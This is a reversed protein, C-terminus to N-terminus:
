QKFVKISCTKGNIVAEILYIGMPLVQGSASTGDWSLLYKGASAIENALSEVLNGSSNYVNVQVQSRIDLQIALNVKETFPNPYATMQGQATVPETIGVGLPVWDLVMEQFYPQNAPNLHEAVPGKHFLVSTSPGPSGNNASNESTYEVWVQYVGDPVQQGSSNTGDWTITHMQHSNLTAGTVATTTNYASSAVWKVLHKKRSAAMVKRSVIFNGAQDKIWISLVHKPAYGTNNSLTRVTFTMTGPTSEMPIAKQGRASLTCLMTLSFLLVFLTKM